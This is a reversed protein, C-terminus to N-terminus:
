LALCRDQRSKMFNLYQTGLHKLELRSKDISQDVPVRYWFDIGYQAITLADIRDTKPNRIRQCRYRKMELPNIRYVLYGAIILHAAISLHYSGTAGMIM